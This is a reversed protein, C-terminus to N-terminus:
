SAAYREVIGRAVDAALQYREPESLPGLHHEGDRPATYLDCVAQQDIDGAVIACLGGRRFHVCGACRASAFGHRYNAATKSRKHGAVEIVGEAAYREVAGRVASALRERFGAPQPGPQVDDARHGGSGAAGECVGVAGQSSRSFDHEHRSYSQQEPQDGPQETAGSWEARLLDLSTGLLRDAIEKKRRPENQLEQAAQQFAEALPGKTNVLRDYLFLAEDAQQARELNGDVDLTNRGGEQIKGVRRKSSVSKFINRESTLAHRVAAKLEARQDILSEELPEGFLSMAGGGSSKGAFEFEKAMEVVHSDPVARGSDQERKALRAFLKDQLEPDKLERAVALARGETMRGETLVQFARPSLDRLHVADAAIKGRISIGSKQLDEITEGSDRLFKAADTATGRGEALNAKAGISRAEAADRAPIYMVQMQGDWSAMGTPDTFPQSRAALEHRHHGNIVYTKGEVPDRWVLLQGGFLPNYQRVDQLEKTVGKKPDIGSIKYQFRTPDAAIDAVHLTASGTWIGDATVTVGPPPSEGLQNALRHPGVGRAVAALTPHARALAKAEPSDPDDRLKDFLATQHGKPLPKVNRGGRLQLTEPEGPQNQGADAAASAKGSAKHRKPPKGTPGGASAAVSATPSKDDKASTAPQEIKPEPPVAKAQTSGARGSESVAGGGPPREAPSASGPPVDAPRDPQPGAPGISERRGAGPDLLPRPPQPKAPRQAARRPAPEDEPEAVGVRHGGAVLKQLAEQLGEPTVATADLIKAAPAADDHLFYYAGDHYYAVLPNDGGVAAKVEAHKAADVPPGGTPPAGPTAPGPSPAPKAPAAPEQKDQDVADIPKGELNDPGAAIKGAPDIKVPTGGAHKEGGPGPGGGITVWQGGAAYLERSCLRAFISKALGDREQTTLASM